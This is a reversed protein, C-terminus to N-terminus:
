VLLAHFLLLYIPSLPRNLSRAAKARERRRPVSTTGTSQTSHARRPHMHTSNAQESAARTSIFNIGSARLWRRRLFVRWIVYHVHVFECFDLSRGILACKPLCSQGSNCGLQNSRCKLSNNSFHCAAWILNIFCLPSLKQFLKVVILMTALTKANTPAFLKAHLCCLSVLNIDSSNSFKIM